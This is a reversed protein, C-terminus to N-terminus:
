REAGESWGRFRELHPTPAAAVVPALGAHVRGSAGDVTIADGDRLVTGGITATGAAEDIELGEAGVVAPLHLERAV